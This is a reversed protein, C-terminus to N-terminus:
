IYSKKDKSENETVSKNKDMENILLLMALPIFLLYLNDELLSHLIFVLASFGLGAVLFNHKKYLRFLLSITVIIVLTMFILGVIGARGLASFIWSHASATDDTSSIINANHLIVNYTGYGRGTLWWAPSLITLTNQWIYTRSTFTYGNVFYNSLLLRFKENVSCLITFTVAIVTALSVLSVLLVKGKKSGERIKRIALWILYIFFIATTIIIGTKCITLFLYIYLLISILLFRKKQSIGYCILTAGITGEIYVGYINRHNFFSKLGYDEIHSSESGPAFLKQFILGYNNTEKILSYIVSVIMVVYLGYAFAKIITLSKFRHPAIVIMLFCFIINAVWGFFFVIKPKLYLNTTVDIIEGTRYIVNNQIKIGITIVEPQIFIAATGIISVAYLLILFPKNYKIPSYKNEFILYLVFSIILLIFVISILWLPLLSDVPNVVNYLNLAELYIFFGLAIVLLLLLDSHRYDIKKLLKQM